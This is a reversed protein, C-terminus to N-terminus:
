LVEHNSDPKTNKLIFLIQLLFLNELKKKKLNVIFGLMITKVQLGPERSATAPPNASTWGPSYVLYFSFMDWFIIIFAYIFAKRQFNSLGLSVSRSECEGM